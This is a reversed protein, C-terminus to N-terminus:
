WRWEVGFQVGHVLMDSQKFLAQPSVVTSAGVAPTNPVYSLNVLRDIQDGPRIVDTWYLFNYGVHVKLNQTIWYGATVTLEPVVSFRSRDFNGIAPGVALLGGRYQQPTQGPISVTQGGIINLQQYTAGFAVSGRFDLDFGGWRREYTGGIQGGNFYNGTAFRDNVNVHTGVPDNVILRTGSTGVVDINENINISEILDLNRYGVFLTANSDCDKFLCTKLNLDGGFLVSQAHVGLV